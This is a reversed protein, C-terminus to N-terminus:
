PVSRRGVRLAGLGALVLVGVARAPSWWGAYMLAAAVGTALAVSVAVALVLRELLDDVPIGRVAAWGPAVALVAVAALLRM